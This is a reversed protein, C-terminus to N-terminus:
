TAAVQDGAMNEAEEHWYESHAEGIDYHYEALGYKPWRMKIRPFAKFYVGKTRADEAMAEARRPANDTLFDQWNNFMDLVIRSHKGIYQAGLWTEARTHRNYDQSGSDPDLKADFLRQLRWTTAMFFHDRPHFPFDRYLGLTFIGGRAKNANFFDWMMPLDEIIQDSRAKIAYSSTALKLGERSSVIQANRNGIGMNEPLPQYLCTIDPRVLFMESDNWSSLIIKDVWPQERYKDIVDNIIGTVPGQIVVDCKM